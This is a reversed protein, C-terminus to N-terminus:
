LKNKAVILCFLPQLSKFTAHGALKDPRALGSRDVHIGPWLPTNDIAIYATASILWSEVM